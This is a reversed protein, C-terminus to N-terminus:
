KGRTVRAVLERGMSRAPREVFKWTLLPIIGISAITIWQIALRPVQPARLLFYEGVQIVIGHMLYISYSVDGLFVAPKSSLLRGLADNKGATPDALCFILYGIPFVALLALAHNIVTIILLVLVLWGPPMRRAKGHLVFAKQLFCGAIFECVLRLGGAKMGPTNLEKHGLLLTGSLVALSLAAFLWAQWGRRVKQVALFVLPFAMYAMWEASLSWAPGNWVLPNRLWNQLLLAAFVFNRWSFSGPPYVLTFGPLLLVIGALVLLAFLHLPYVRVLRLLLFRAHEKVRYGPFADQYVHSLIFGSLIFFIDVGMYGEHIVPVGPLFHFCVVWIAAVGRLGTLAPLLTVAAQKSTAKAHTTM